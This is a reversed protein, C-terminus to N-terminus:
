SISSFRKNVYEWNIVNFWNTIYNARENKYQLYYAHEWIDINLIPTAPYSLPTNQNAGCAIDLKYDKYVLWVYGSGILSNAKKTFCDVFNTYSGFNYKIAYLIENEPYSCKDPSMCKFYLQHNYVGGASNLLECKFSINSKSVYVMLEELTLNHLSPFKALKENLSHVYSKYHKNYHYYLIESSIYPELANLSYPLDIPIFPYHM